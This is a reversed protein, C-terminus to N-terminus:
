AAPLTLKEGPFIWHGNDSDPYGYKKATDEITKKNLKYIEPWRLSDGLRSYAIAWLTDGQRVTYTGGSAKSPRSETKKKGGKKRSKGSAKKLEKMTYINLDHYQVFTITYSVDGSGGEFSTDFKSITVDLNVGTETIMLRLVKGNGMWRKLTKLCEKPAVYEKKPFFMSVKKGDKALGYRGPGFFTGTWSIEDCEKGKPLKYSKGNVLDYSRYKASASVDIKEPLAPFLFSNKSDKVDTLIIDM